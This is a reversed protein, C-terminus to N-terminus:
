ASDFWPDRLDIFEPEGEAVEGFKSMMEQMAQNEGMKKEGVRAEAESTFYIVGINTGDNTYGDVGGIIDPRDMPVNEMERALARMGEVDKVKSVMVQVFGADDSGGGQMLDVTPCDYFRPQGDFVKSMTNEWWQGQEPRDSNQRAKEESEFRAVTIFEGADTVGATSGLYGIANPRQEKIWSEHAQKAAAADKVKGRIAQIFM